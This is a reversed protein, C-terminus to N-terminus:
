ISLPISKFHERAQSVTEDIEKRLSKIYDISAPSKGLNLYDAIINDPIKKYNEKNAKKMQAVIFPSPSLELHFLQFAETSLKQEIFSLALGMLIEHTDDVPKDTLMNELYDIESLDIVDKHINKQNYSSRLIRFKFLSLSNILHGLLIEKNYKDYYKNFVHIFKIDFWALIDKYELGFRRADIGWALKNRLKQTKKYLENFVKPDYDGMPNLRHEEM